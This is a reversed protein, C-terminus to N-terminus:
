ERDRSKRGGNKQLTFKDIRSQRQVICMNLNSPLM